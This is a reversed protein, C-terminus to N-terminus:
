LDIGNLVWENSQRYNAISDFNKDADHGYLIGPNANGHDTTIIVLNNGDKKAFDIAVKIAEDFAIQDKILGGIDNGHAAWDVKGGEVQLAFGKKNTNMLQIATQTMEALTPVNELLSKDNVHDLSYPLTNNAFVGLVPQKDE